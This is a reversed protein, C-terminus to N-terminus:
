MNKLQLLLIKSSLVTQINVVNPLISFVTATLANIRFGIAGINKRDM